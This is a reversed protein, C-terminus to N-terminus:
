GMMPYFEEEGEEDFYFRYPFTINENFYRVLEILKDHNTYIYEGFGNTVNFKFEVGKVFSNQSIYYNYVNTIDELLKIKIAEFLVNNM